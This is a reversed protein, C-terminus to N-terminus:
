SCRRKSAHRDIPAHSPAAAGHLDLNARVTLDQDIMEEQFVIGVASRVARPERIVDLGAVRATGSTPRLLTTLMGLTTSKGAGNPGLM